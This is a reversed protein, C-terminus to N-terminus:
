HERLTLTLVVEARRASGRASREVPAGVTSSAQGALSGPIDPRVWWGDFPRLLGWDDPYRRPPPLDSGTGRVRM